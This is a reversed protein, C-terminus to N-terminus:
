MLESYGFKPEWKSCCLLVSQVMKGFGVREHANHTTPPATNWIHVIELTCKGKISILISIQIFM